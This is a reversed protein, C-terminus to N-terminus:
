KAPPEPNQAARLQNNKSMCLLFVILDTLVFSTYHGVPATTQTNTSGYLLWLIRCCLGIVVNRNVNTGDGARLKVHNVLSNALFIGLAISLGFLVRIWANEAPYLFLSLAVPVECAVEIFLELPDTIKLQQSLSWKSNKSSHDMKTSLVVIEIALILLVNDPFIYM